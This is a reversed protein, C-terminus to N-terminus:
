NFQNLDITELKNAINCMTLNVEPSADNLVGSDHLALLAIIILKLEYKELMLPVVPNGHINVM